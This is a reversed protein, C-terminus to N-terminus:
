VKIPMILHLYNPDKTDKFVGASTSSNFGISIEEGAASMAFEELYRYNFATELEEKTNKEVKADVKTEQSGAQGSEGVVKIFDKLSRFLM